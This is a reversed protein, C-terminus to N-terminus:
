PISIGELLDVLGLESLCEDSPAGTKPDWGLLEYFRQKAWAFEEDSIEIGEIPGSKFATRVRKPLTDDEVTLGERYNFLRCLTQTRAGVELVDNITYQTGTVGSLADALHIYDYPYFHCTIACDQFHAWNVETYL